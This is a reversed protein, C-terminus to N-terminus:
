NRRCHATFCKRCVPVEHQRCGYETASPRGPKEACLICAKRKPSFLKEHNHIGSSPQPTHQPASRARVDTVLEGALDEMWDKLGNKAAGASKAVVFANYCSVSLFFFFLWRWWKKSRDKFIYYGVMQDLLDVGKMHKQYDALCVPVPVQTQIDRGKRRLVVGREKPDHFTSLVQVVKTDQWACFTFEDKQAM